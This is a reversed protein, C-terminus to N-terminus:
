RDATPDRIRGRPDLPVVITFLSRPQTDERLPGAAGLFRVEDIRVSVGYPEDRLVRAAPFRSFALLVRAPSAATAATVEPGEESPVWVRAGPAAPRLLDIESLLYGGSYERIVRWRFPTLFTPLAAAAVLCDSAPSAATACPREAPLKGSPEDRWSHVQEVLAPSESAARALAFQHLSGRFAYNAGMLMLALFAARARVAPRLRAALLGCSLIAILYIDLIPLWDAAYWASNFPMLFRTGYSTPLDMAVHCAVGILGLAALAGPSASERRRGFGSAIWAALAAVGALVVIGLPGHTLGRHHALYSTSGGSLVTVIDLDPANSAVLLALTSGRGARRLPTQALTLAFLSHTVNDM